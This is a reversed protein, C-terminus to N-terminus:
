IKKRAMKVKTIQKRFSICETIFKEKLLHAPYSEAQQFRQLRLIKSHMEENTLKVRLLAFKDRLM